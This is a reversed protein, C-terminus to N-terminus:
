EGRDSPLAVGSMKDVIMGKEYNVVREVPAGINFCMIPMNMKM